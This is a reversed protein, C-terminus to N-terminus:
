NLLDSPLLPPCRRNGRLARRAPRNRRSRQSQERPSNTECRYFDQGNRLSLEGISSGRVRAQIQVSQGIPLLGSNRQAPSVLVLGATILILLLFLFLTQRSQM